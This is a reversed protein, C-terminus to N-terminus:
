SAQNRTRSFVRAARQKLASAQAAAGGQEALLALHCLAEYHDPQLYVCRRWHEGAEAPQQNCESILGLIFYAEAAGPSSALVAHCAVAAAAHDGQNALQRAHTLMAALDFGQASEREAHGTAAQGSRPAPRLVPAPRAQSAAPGPLGAARPRRLQGRREKQLAFAGPMRMPTFGNTCFVPVEAYGAFLVGDDALLLRLKAIATATTADDFYILLNRCFLVDYRGANGLADIDLLNGQSFNVRERLHDHIQYENDVQSFHRARFSIDPGRFANRTYRGRRARELAVESLDMADITVSEMAVGADALSMAISYPEEGSACPLSLIRLQRQPRAALSQQVYATASVFAQADRFLWSEPVVVLEVLAQLEAPTITDLYARSDRQGLIAMRQRLAREAAAVSLNLGTTQKILERASM